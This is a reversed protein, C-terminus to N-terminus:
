AKMLGTYIAGFLNELDGKAEFCAIAVINQQRQNLVNKMNQQANIPHCTAITLLAAAILKNITRM